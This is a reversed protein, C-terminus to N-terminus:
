RVATSGHTPRGAAPTPPDATTIGAGFGAVASWRFRHQPPSDPIERAFGCWSVPNTATLHYLRNGDIQAGRRSAALVQGTVDSILRSADARRDPRGRHAARPRRRGPAPHDERFKGRAGFTCGAPASFWRAGRGGHDGSRRASARGMSWLSPDRRETYAGRKSGDFVYDTSYHVMLAGLAKAAEAMVGPATANIAHALAPEREARDVATAAANVIIRPAVAAIQHSDCGSKGSRVADPRGRDCLGATVALATAALRGARRLRFCFRTMCASRLPDRDVGPLHGLDRARGLRRQGSVLRRDQPYRYRLNRGAALGAREIKARRHRLSPRPRATGSMPSRTAIPVRRRRRAADLLDCLAHVIALNPMENWGGINYRASRGQKWCVASPPATIAWTCGTVFRSGTVMSRCPLGTLANHIMLPILKEPFQYPGYNNSCNTTLVPLGYTHHYARVLHDSAAKSASYPSNPQYPHSETFAPAATALKLRPGEDTSVQLFRFGAREEDSLGNFHARVSELLHFIGVINTQIFDGPGHISRDVHSEAAFSLVARPRHEALLAGVCAADGIDGHVFVHRSDGQLSRLNELNGAYTLKDLNVVPEDCQALWDLVFNAGIFGAGGTVLITM